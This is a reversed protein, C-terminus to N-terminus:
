GDTSNRCLVTFVLRIVRCLGVAPFSIAFWLVSYGPCIQGLFNFPMASYDWVSFDFILNFVAGFALETATIVGCYLLCRLPLPTQSLRKELLYIILFCVGGALLMTPHTHGRWIIEVLAYAVAGCAFACINEALRIKQNERTIKPIEKTNNMTGRAYRSIRKQYTSSICHVAKCGM